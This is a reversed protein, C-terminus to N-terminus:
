RLRSTEPPSETHNTIIAWLFVYLFSELDHRYTHCEGKLVGIAMFPRTGTIGDEIETGAALEVASDLDRQVGKPDGEKQRDLTIINGASVDRHLIQADCILSRHCKIADRFIQLLELRPQFTHLPRGVRSTVVCTLIRNEFYNDTDETYNALGHDNSPDNQRYRERSEM